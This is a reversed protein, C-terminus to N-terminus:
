RSAPGLHPDEVAMAGPDPVIRRGGRRALVQTLEASLLLVQSALFVWFMVIALSAAAGFAGMPMLRSLYGGILLKGLLLLVASLGGGALADRWAIKADPLFQYIAAIMLAILVFSVLTNLLHVVPSSLGTLDGIEHSMAGLATSAVFAVLLSLFVVALATFSLVRALVNKWFGRVPRVAVHWIRNLAVQLQRLFGFVGGLLAAFGIGAALAGNGPRRANQVITRAVEAGEHGTLMRTEELIHESVVAEGFLWGAVTILLVLLPPLAFMTFFALSAAAQVCGDRKFDRLTEKAVAFVVKPAVRM